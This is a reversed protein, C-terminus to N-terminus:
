LEIQVLPALFSFSWNNTNPLVKWGIVLDNEAIAGFNAKSQELKLVLQFTKIMITSCDSSIDRLIIYGLRLLSHNSSAPRRPSKWKTISKGKGESLIYFIDWKTVNLRKKIASIYNTLLRISTVLYFWKAGVKECDRLKKRHKTPYVIKFSTM